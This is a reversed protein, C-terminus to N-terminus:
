AKSKRTAPRTSKKYNQENLSIESMFTDITNKLVSEFGIIDFDEEGEYQVTIKSGDLNDRNEVIGRILKKVNPTNSSIEVICEETLCIKLKESSEM